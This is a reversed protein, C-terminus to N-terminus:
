IGFHNRFTMNEKAAALDDEQIIGEKFDPNYEISKDLDSIILNIDRNILSKYCARNWLLVALLDSRNNTTALNIAKDLAVIAEPIQNLWRLARAKVGWAKPGEDLEIASEADCLAEHYRQEEIKERAGYLLLESYLLQINHETNHKVESVDRELDKLIKDSLGNIIKLGSFGGIIGIGIIHIIPTLLYTIEKTAESTNSIKEIELGLLQAFAITVFAAGIGIIMHGFFGTNFEKGDLPISITYANPSALAYIIGGMSGSCIILLILDM